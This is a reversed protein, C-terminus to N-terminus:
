IDTVPREELWKKINPVNAVRNYHETLLPFDKLEEPSCELKGKAFFHNFLNFPVIDAYTLKDGVFFGKGGNNSRLIDEFYKLFVPIAAKAEKEYQEKRAEDSEFHSKMVKMGLDTCADVIMDAQAKEMNISPSLGVENAVYRGIALSQALIVKGDVELLPMQGFPAKGASKMAAWEEGTLRKDEYDVGAAKFLLRIPEARGRLNFYYLKYQPM